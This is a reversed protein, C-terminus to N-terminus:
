MIFLPLKIVENREFSQRKARVLRQGVTQGICDQDGISPARKAIHKASTPWKLFLEAGAAHDWHPRNVPEPTTLALQLVTM